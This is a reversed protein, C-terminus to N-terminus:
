LLRDTDAGGSIFDNGANGTITDNGGNGFLANAADNGVLVDAGLNSGNVDELNAAQGATGVHLTRDDTAGIFTGFASLNLNVQDGSDLLFFNLQDTGEAPLETIVDTEPGAIVTEFIYTDGETGGALSDSGSGSERLVDGGAGGSVSDNGHSGILSDTGAGGIITDGITGGTGEITDNGGGGDITVATLSTFVNTAVLHLDIDNPDVDADGTVSFSTVQDCDTTYTTPVANVSVRVDDDATSLDCNIIVSETGDAAVVFAPADTVVVAAQAPAPNLFLSGGTLAASAAM